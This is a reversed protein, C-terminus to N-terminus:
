TSVRFSMCECVWPGFDERRLLFSSDTSDSPTLGRIFDLPGASDLISVEGLFDLVTGYVTFAGGNLVFTAM